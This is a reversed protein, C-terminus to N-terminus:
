GVKTLGNCLYKGPSVQRWVGARLQIIAQCEGTVKGGVNQEIHLGHATWAREKAVAAILSDRTLTGGLELAKDAFLRAASWAYLGTPTPESGPKVQQLWQEYLRMEPNPSGFPQQALQVYSGEVATGGQEIYAQNYQTPLVVFVDPKYGQQQMAQAMRVAFANSGGFQVFRVGRDKLQQVYPAYNFESAGIGALYTVNYGRAEVAKARAEANVKLDGVDIYLIATSKIAEPGGVKKFFDIGANPIADPSTVQASYCTRCDLRQRSFSVMRLDPIGCSAATAAGGTDFVSASGVAAFTEACAAAYAQQDGSADTRSDFSKVAIQHGCIDSISNFYEVYARVGDLASQFLGPSPGTLDSANGIVITDATVGPQSDDFGDCNGAQAQESAPDAEVTPTISTNDNTQTGVDPSTDPTLGAGDAPAVPDGALADPGAGDDVDSAPMDASADSSTSPGSLAAVRLGADAGNALAVASPDLQSGCSALTLALM